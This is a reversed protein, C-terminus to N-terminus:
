ICFEYIIFGYSNWLNWERVCILSVFFSQSARMCWFIGWVTFVRVLTRDLSSIVYLDRPIRGIRGGESAWAGVRLLGDIRMCARVCGYVSTCEGLEMGSKEAYPVPDRSRAGASLLRRSAAM